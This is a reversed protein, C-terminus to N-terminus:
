WRRRTTDVDDGVSLGNANEAGVNSIWLVDSGSQYLIDIFVFTQDFGDASNRSLISDGNKTRYYNRFGAEHNANMGGFEDRFSHNEKFLHHTVFERFNNFDRVVEESTRRTSGIDNQSTDEPERHPGATEAECIESHDSFEGIFRRHTSRRLAFNRVDVVGLDLLEESFSISFRAGKRLRETSSNTRWSEFVAVRQLPNVALSETRKEAREETHEVALNRTTYLQLSTIPMSAGDRVLREADQGVRTTKGILVQQRASTTDVGVDSM